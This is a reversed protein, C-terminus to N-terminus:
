DKENQLAEKIDGYSFGQCALYQMLKLDDKYRAQQRKKAILKKLIDQEDAEDEALVQEIIEDSVRKQRLEATLRRRSTSKLLRRNNVWARAFKYDDVYGADSLKNLIKEILPPPSNKRKLYEQLEWESRPRLMIYGLARDYLGGLKAIDKLEGLEQQSLEQNLRLGSSLLDTEGLSFAYKGEVHVAYRDTRKIQQRIGTIKM